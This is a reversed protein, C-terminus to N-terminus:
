KLTNWLPRYLGFLGHPDYYVPDFVSWRFVHPMVNTAGPPRRFGPTLLPFDSDRTSDGPTLPACPAYMGSPWRSGWVGGLGDDGVAILPTNDSYTGALVCVLQAQSTPPKSIGFSRPPPGDGPQGRRRPRQHYSSYGESKGRSGSRRRGAEPVPSRLTPFWWM